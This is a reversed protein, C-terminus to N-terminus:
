GIRPVASSSESYLEAACAYDHQCRAIDATTAAIIATSRADRLRRVTALSRELSTRAAAVDGITLYILGSIGLSHAILYPDGSRQLAPLAENIFGRAAVHDGTGFLLAQASVFQALGIFWPDGTAFAQARGESLLDNAQRPDSMGRVFALRLLALALGHCDNLQRFLTTSEEAFKGVVAHDGQDFALAAAGVLAWARARQLSPSPEVGIMSADLATQLRERGESLYGRRDWFWHLAGALRLAEEMNGSALLWEFAARMNDHDAELWDLWRVQNPGRLHPVAAEAFGLCYAAHRARVDAEEGSAALQELAYERITELMIFRPEGEADEVSRLLSHAVLMALHALM